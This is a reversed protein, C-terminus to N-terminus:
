AQLVSCVMHRSNIVRYLLTVQWGEEADQVTEMRAAAEAAAATTQVLLLLLLVLLPLVLRRLAM